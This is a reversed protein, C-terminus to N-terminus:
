VLASEEGVQVQVADPQESVFYRRHWVLFMFITWIKRANNAKNTYHEDLLALLENQNFFEAAEDSTFYSKIQQYFKDERMWNRIPVPFGMKKRNAVPLALSEFSHPHKEGLGSIGKAQGARAAAPIMGAAAGGIPLPPTLLAPDERKRQVEYLRCERGAALRRGAPDPDAGIIQLTRLPNKM